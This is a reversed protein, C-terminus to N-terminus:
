KSSNCASEQDGSAELKRWRIRQGEACDITRQASMGVSYDSPPRRQGVQDIRRDPLVLSEIAVIPTRNFAISQFLFVPVVEGLDREVLSIQIDRSGRQERHGVGVCALPQV